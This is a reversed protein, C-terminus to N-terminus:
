GVGGKTHKRWATDCNLKLVGFVSKQWYGVGERIKTGMQQGEGLGDGLCRGVGFTWDRRHEREEGVMDGMADRFEVMQWQQMMVEADVEKKMRQVIRQWGELFENVGMAVM